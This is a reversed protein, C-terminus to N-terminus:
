QDDEEGVIQLEGMLLLEQLGYVHPMLCKECTYGVADPKINYAEAGCARCRGTDGDMVEEETAKIIM